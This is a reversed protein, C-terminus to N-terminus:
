SIAALAPTSSLLRNHMVDSRPEHDMSRRSPVHPNAVETAKFRSFIWSGKNRM